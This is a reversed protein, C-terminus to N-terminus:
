PAFALRPSYLPQPGLAGVTAPGVSAPCLMKGQGHGGRDRDDDDGVVAPRGQAAAEIRELRLAGLDDDHVVAVLRGLEPRSGADPQHGGAGVDAEGRAAVEAGRVRRAVHQREEVRVRDDRGASECVEGAREVIAGDPDRHRAQAEQVPGVQEVGAAVDEVEGPNRPRACVPLRRVPDALNAVHGIRRARCHRDAGLQEALESLERLLQEHVLLVELEAPPCVQVAKADDDRRARVDVVFVLVPPVHLLM